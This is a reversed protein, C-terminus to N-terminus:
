PNVALRWAQISVMQHIVIIARTEGSVCGAAECALLEAGIRLVFQVLSNGQKFGFDGPHFCVAVLGARVASRRIGQESARFWSADRAKNGDPNAITRLWGM